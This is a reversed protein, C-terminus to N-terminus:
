IHRHFVKLERDSLVKEKFIGEFFMCIIDEAVEEISLEGDDKFWRYAWNMMGFGSFTMTVRNMNRLLHKDIECIKNYYLM